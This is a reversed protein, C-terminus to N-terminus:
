LSLSLMAAVSIIATESRLRNETLRLEISNPFFSIEKQTLGGEPGFLFYKKTGKEALIKKVEEAFIKEATQEFVFVKEGEAMEIEKLSKFHKVSPLFSRLSQKMASELIKQWRGIKSGKAVSREADFVYFNTIGFEVAKELAMEFRSPNKLRPLVFYYDAFKNEFKKSSIIRCEMKSAQASLIETEFIGGRGNTIFIKEGAKHRMVKSAHKFEEGTLTLVDGSPLDPSYYLEINTLLDSVM